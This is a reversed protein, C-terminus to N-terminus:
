LCHRSGAVVFFTHFCISTMLFVLIELYQLKTDRCKDSHFYNFLLNDYGIKNTNFLFQKGNIELVYTRQMTILKM